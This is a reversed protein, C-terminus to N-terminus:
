GGHRFDGAAALVGAYHDTRLELIADPHFSDALIAFSFPQLPIFLSLFSTVFDLFIFFLSFRWMSSFDFFSLGYFALALLVLAFGRGLRRFFAVLFYFFHGPFTATKDLLTFLLSFLAWPLFVVFFEGVRGWRSFFSVIRGRRLWQYQSTHFFFFLRVFSLSFFCLLAAPTLLFFTLFLLGLFSLFGSTLPWIFYRHYDLRQIGYWLYRLFRFTPPRQHM